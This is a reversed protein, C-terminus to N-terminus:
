SNSKVNKKIRGNKFDKRIKFDYNDTGICREGNVNLIYKLNREFANLDALSSGFTFNKKM